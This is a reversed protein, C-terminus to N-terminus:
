LTSHIRVFNYYMMHLAVHYARNEVKKSFGNTLRTFRRMHMRITLNSREVYSMSVHARDPNGEIREKKAGICEAPSYRGKASEPSAGAKSGGAKGRAVAKASKGQEEPTPARDEIKGTAVDVIFRALQNPDRPRKPARTM